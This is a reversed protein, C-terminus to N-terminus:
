KRITEIPKKRSLNWIPAVSSLFAVLVSVGGIVGFQRATYSSLPININIVNQFYKNLANCAFYTITNSIAVNILAIFLSEVLFMLLVGLGTTGLARLIGIQTHRNNITTSIYNAMMAISFVAFVASAILFLRSVEQLTDRNLTLITIINNSCSYKLGNKKTVLSVVKRIQSNSRTSPAIVSSYVGQKVNIGLNTMGSETLILTNPDTSAALGTYFGVIQYSNNGLEVSLLDTGEVNYRTTDKMSVKTKSQLKKLTSKYSPGCMLSIADRAAAFKEADTSKASKMRDLYIKFNDLDDRYKHRTAIGTFSDIETKLVGEFLQLNVLIENGELTTKSPDIFMVTDSMKILENYNYFYQVDMDIAEIDFDYNYTPNKYQILIRNTLYYNEVFGDKVFGYLNFSNGIFNEYETKLSDPANTYDALLSDYKPDIAGVDVIGVIKYSIKNFTLVLPNDERVLDAPKYDKFNSENIALGGGQYGYNIICMAYYDPIAIEDYSDPLRGTEVKLGLKNFDAEDAIEVVGSLKGTLYYKSISSINGVETPRVASINYIGKFNMGTNENLEDILAQSLSFKYEDGNEELYTTTLVLSPVNSNKLTNSVMRSDDNITMADFVGFASFAIACLLVTVILRLPKIKFNSLGMKITNGIGLRGKIFKADGAKYEKAEAKTETEIYFNDEDVIQIDKSQEIAGQLLKVDKDSLKAGRKLIVKDDLEKIHLKKSDEDRLLTYDREVSGDKMEIIRDAYSKALDMNHSVIIVLRDKSLERLLNMVQIGSNTDLAGTPEDTLIIQPKKILARAIAVRQKQGGSLESPLRDNVGELDVQKLIKNITSVDRKRQGQLEMALSINKEVTMDDLLNYEQFVFGIFTNRYNDFDRQKFQAFSKGKIILDGDDYSDLGGVVNLLTTKGSGSKGIVFVMGKEDFSLNVKNLAVVDESKTKYVKTINRLELM